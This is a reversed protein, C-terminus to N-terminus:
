GLQLGQDVTPLAREVELDRDLVVDGSLHARTALVAQAAHRYDLRQDLDDPEFGLAVYPDDISWRARYREIAAVGARWAHREDPTDPRTGLFQGIYAPADFETAQAARTAHRDLAATTAAYRALTDHHDVTWAQPEPLEELRHDVDVLQRRLLEVSVERHARQVDATHHHRLLRRLGRGQSSLSGEDLRGTAVELDGVLEARREVLRQRQRWDAVPLDARLQAGLERRLAAVEVM